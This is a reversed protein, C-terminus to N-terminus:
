ICISNDTGGRERVTRSFQSFGWHGFVPFPLLSEVQIQSVWLRLDEPFVQISGAKWVSPNEECGQDTQQAEVAAKSKRSSAIYERLIEVWPRVDIM